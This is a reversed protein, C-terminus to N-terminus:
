TIIEILTGTENKKAKRQLVQLNIAEPNDEPILKAYRLADCLYKVSGYLNDVDLFKTGVRTIRVTVRGAGGGEDEGQGLSPLQADQEPQTYPLRPAVAKLIQAHYKEPLDTLAFRSM